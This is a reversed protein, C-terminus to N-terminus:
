KFQLLWLYLQQYPLKAGLLKKMFGTKWRSKLFDNKLEQIHRMYYFLSQPNALKNTEGEDFFRFDSFLMLDKKQPEQGTEKLGQFLEDANYHLLYSLIFDQSADKIFDLAGSQIMRIAKLEKTKKGDIIYEYPARNAITRNQKVTYNIVSGDQELFFSEFLGVFSSRKDEADKENKFDFLYGNLDLDPIVNTNRTYYNAVGVYYGYIENDIGLQDLTETLFRQMGGSWGIDVIGFKGSVHEQKLYSILANYENNSKNEIDISLEKYLNLLNTNDFITKRDFSSKKNLGYKLLLNEYDNIDLGVCDFISILPVIKSPSVMGMITKFDHNFHLIPVRLSRRSVELYHIEIDENAYLLKFAKLMIYGDRSFFFVKKIGKEKLKKHIWRIYGWLFPGFKQYGFKYYPNTELKINNNVVSNLYNTNIEDGCFVTDENKIIRPIHLASIKRKQPMIYDAKWSDGIHIANQPNISNQKLYLEFLTGDKKTKGYESSVYLKKYGTIGNNLLVNAIFNSPLYMDSIIYVKKYRICYNYFDIIYPNITLCQQEICLELSKLKNKLYEEADYNEYIDDLTIEENSKRRAKQEAVIRKEKFDEEKELRLQILDFVDSPKGVNRKLLTDFVDFSVYSYNKTAEILENLTPMVGQDSKKRLYNKIRKM